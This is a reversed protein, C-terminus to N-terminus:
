RSITLTTPAGPKIVLKEVTVLGNADAKVTGSGGTSSTWKLGEGAKPKFQQCRRPTVDVTMDAKCLENSIQTSWKGAEDVVGEWKFGLNIGFVEQPGKKKDVNGIDGDKPDGNGMNANISSNGFAPYSVNRAFLHWPYYKNVERMPYSGSSHTGDNWAFAFGHKAETLAQVMDIQEKWTAFGDRRGCCWGIFPLDAPHSKVFAPMDMRAFYDTEGDAM